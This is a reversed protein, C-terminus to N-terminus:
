RRYALAGTKKCSEICRGCMYCEAKPDTDKAEQTPCAKTCNGCDICAEGVRFRFLSKAAALSLIAGFPCFLRCFPRYVFVSIVLILAFVFFLPSLIDLHFFEHIGSLQLIGASFIVASVLFLIFFAWRFGM